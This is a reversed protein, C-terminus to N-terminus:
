SVHPYSSEELIGRRSRDFYIFSPSIIDKLTAPDLTCDFQHSRIDKTVEKSAHSLPDATDRSLDHLGKKWTFSLLPPLLPETGLGMLMEGTTQESADSSLQNLDCEFVNKFLNQKGRFLSIKRVVAKSISWNSKVIQSSRNYYSVADCWGNRGDWGGCSEVCSFPNNWWAAGSRQHADRCSPALVHETVRHSLLLIAGLLVHEVM